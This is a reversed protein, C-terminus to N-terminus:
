RSYKQGMTKNSRNTVYDQSIVHCVLVMMDGSNCQRHDDSKAPYQNEKLSDVCLTVHECTFVIIDESDCYM